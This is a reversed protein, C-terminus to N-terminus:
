RNLKRRVVGALGTIGTGLLLLSGPEPTPTPDWGFNPGWFGDSVDGKVTTGTFYSGNSTSWNDGLLNIPAYVAFGGDNFAYPDSFGSAGDIVYTHGALLETPSIPTFAFNLFDTYGSSSNVTASALLNGSADYLAVGHNEGLSSANGGVAYYGLFDITINQNAVFVEGLSYGTSNNFSSGTTSFDWAVSSAFASASLSVVVALVIVLCFKKSM